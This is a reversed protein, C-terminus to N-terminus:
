QVEERVIWIRPKMLTQIPHVAEEATPRTIRWKVGQAEIIAEDKSIATVVSGEFKSRRAVVDFVLRDYPELAPEQETQPNEFFDLELGKTIKTALFFVDWKRM